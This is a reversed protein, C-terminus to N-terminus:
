AIASVLAKSTPKLALYSHAPTQYNYGIQGGGFGGQPQARTSQDVGGPYTITNGDGSWGYGGNIGAYFGTWTNAPIVPAVYSVPPAPSARYLDAAYATMAEGITSLSVLFALGFCRSYM